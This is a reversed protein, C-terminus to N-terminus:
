YLTCVQLVAVCEIKSITFGHGLHLSGNMYPYPFTGFWKSTAAAAAPSKHTLVFCSRSLVPAPQGEAPDTPADVEFIKDAEWKAQQVKELEVLRDRRTTKEFTLTANSQSAQVAAAEKSIGSGAASM